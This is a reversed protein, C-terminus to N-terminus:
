EKVSFYLVKKCSQDINKDHEKKPSNNKKKFYKRARFQTNGQASNKVSLRSSTPQLVLSKPLVKYSQSESIINKKSPSNRSFLNELLNQFEKDDQAQENNKVNQQKKNYNHHNKSLSYKYLHKKKKESFTADKLNSIEEMKSNLEAIQNFTDFQKNKAYNEDEFKVKGSDLLPSTIGGFVLEHNRSQEKSILKPVKLKM